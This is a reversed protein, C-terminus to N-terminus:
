RKRGKAQAKGAAPEIGLFEVTVGKKVADALQLADWNTMRVCGHSETKSVKGPEPTGHIGYGESSLGIWVLGVPNNAGPNITFPKRSKVGKFAYDPNYRYTPNKNVSTVKLTGSPAPKEASGVTVPYTALNVGNQDFARLVQKGKDVEIRTVRNPLAPVAVDVVQITDGARDFKQGPNLATLLAEGIHFREALRERASTYDVAPLDKMDELKRPMKELFPGRVDEERLTYDIVIPASAAVTLKTWVDENLGSAAIGADAAFAALAKKFNEGDRGDIEGPSYRARALLVQAKIIQPSIQKSRAAAANWNANNIANADLKTTAWAPASVLGSLCIAAALLSVSRWMVVSSTVGRRNKM